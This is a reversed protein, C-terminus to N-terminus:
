FLNKINVFIYPLLILFISGVILSPVVILFKSKLKQSKILCGVALLILSIFLLTVFFIMACKFCFFLTNKIFVNFGNIYNDIM